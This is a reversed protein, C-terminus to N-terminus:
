VEYYNGFAVAGLKDGKEKITVFGYDFYEGDHVGLGFCKQWNEHGKVYEFVIEHDRTENTSGLWGNFWCHHVVGHTDTISSHQQRHSCAFIWSSGPKMLLSTRSGSVGYSPPSHMMRLNANGVQVVKQYANYEIEMRELQLMKEVKFFNFFGPCKDIAFRELRNEHNGSQMIIKSKPCNEKLRELFKVGQYIEDEINFQIEPHRPGYFNISYFDLLDGLIYIEDPQVDKLVEFLLEISKSCKVALHM